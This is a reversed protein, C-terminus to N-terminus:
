TSPEHTNGQHVRGARVASQSWTWGWASPPDVQALWRWRLHEATRRAVWMRYEPGHSDDYPAYFDIVRGGDALM